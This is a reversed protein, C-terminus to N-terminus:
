NLYKHPGVEVSDLKIRCEYCFTKAFEKEDAVQAAKKKKEWDKESFYISILIRIM